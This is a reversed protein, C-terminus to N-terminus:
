PSPRKGQLRVTAALSTFYREVISRRAIPVRGAAADDAAARAAIRVRDSGRTAIDSTTIASPASSSASRIDASRASASEAPAPAVSPKPVQPGGTPPTAPGGRQSPSASTNAPLSLSTLAPTELRRAPPRWAFPVMVVQAALAATAWRRWHTPAELPYMRSSSQQRLAAAGAARVIAAVEDDRRDCALASVILDQLRGCRDIHRAVDIAIPRRRFAHAAALLAFASFVGSFAYGASLSAAWAAEAALGGLLVSITLAQFLRAALARREFRRLEDRFSSDAAM